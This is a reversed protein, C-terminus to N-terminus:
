GPFERVARGAAPFLEAGVSAVVLVAPVAAEGADRGPCWGAGTPTM